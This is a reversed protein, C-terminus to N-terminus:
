SLIRLAKQFLSREDLKTNDFTTPPILVELQAQIIITSRFVSVM